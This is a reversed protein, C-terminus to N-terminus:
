EKHLKVIMSKINEYDEVTEYNNLITNNWYVAQKYSPNNEPDTFLEKIREITLHRNKVLTTQEDIFEIAKEDDLTQQFYSGDYYVSNGTKICGCKDCYATVLPFGGRKFEILSHRHFKRKIYNLLKM